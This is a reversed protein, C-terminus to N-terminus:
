SGKDQQEKLIALFARSQKILNHHNHMYDICNRAICEYQESNNVLENISKSLNQADSYIIGLKYTKIVSSPDNHGLTCVPTGVSFAELYTNSFGETHSTNLLVYSRRLLRIIHEQSLFGLFSVNPLKKLKELAMTTKQDMKKSSGAIEFRFGPMAKAIEYLLPLNKQYRFNGIWSICDRNEINAVKSDVAGIYPNSILHTKRPYKTKLREYQYSNQCVIHDALLLGVTYFALRLPDTKEKYRQDVLFDNSIRLVFKISLFKSIMALVGSFPSPIGFYIYDPKTQKFASIIKPIRIYLYRLKRLGKQPNYTVILDPKDEFFDGNSQAGAIMTQVGISQFGKRWAIVQKAAGGSPHLPDRLLSLAQDDYFLIRIKGM